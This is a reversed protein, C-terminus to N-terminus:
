VLEALDALRSTSSFRRGTVTMYRGVSYIEVGAAGIRFKRGPQEALYGFVHLGTGSPSIEVYTDAPVLHAVAPDLQGGTLCHDLDICGIGNGLVFGRREFRKVTSWASWTFPNTSSAPSGDPQVPVKRVTWCVWRDRRRLEM